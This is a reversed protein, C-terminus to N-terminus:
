LAFSTKFALSLPSFCLHSPPFSFSIYRVVYICRRKWSVKRRALSKRRAKQVKRKNLFAIQKQIQDCRSSIEDFSGITGELDNSVEELPGGFSDMVTTLWVNWETEIEQQGEAVLRTLLNMIPGSHESRLELQLDIFRCPESTFISRMTESATGDGETRREVEGCVAELFQKWRESLPQRSHQASQSFHVMADMAGSGATPNLKLQTIGSSQLIEEFSLTFPQQTFSVSTLIESTEPSKFSVSREEVFSSEPVRICGDSSIQIRDGADLTLCRSAISSRRSRKSIMSSEEDFEITTTRVNADFQRNAFEPEGGVNSVQIKDGPLASFPKGTKEHIYPTRIGVLSERVGAAALLGTMGNELEVTNGEDIDMSDNSAELAVLAETGMLAFDLKQANLQLKSTYKDSKASNLSAISQADTMEISSDAPSLQSKDNMSNAVVDDQTSSSFGAAAPLDVQDFSESSPANKTHFDMNAILGEMGNELEITSEDRPTASTSPVGTSETNTSLMCGKGSPKSKSVNYNGPLAVPGTDDHANSIPSLEPSRNMNEVTIKDVLINLDAEIEVTHDVVPSSTDSAEGSINDRPIAYLEKAKKSPMPTMNVSPSGIHYEAAEPSGFAVSRQSSKSNSRIKKRSSLIGVPQSKKSMPSIQVSNEKDHAVPPLGQISTKCRKNNTQVDTESDLKARLTDLVGNENRMESLRRKTTFTSTQLEEMENESEFAAKKASRTNRAPSNIHQPNPIRRPSPAIKTPTPKKHSNPTLRIPSKAPPTCDTPALQEGGLSADILKSPSPMTSVSASRSRKRSSVVPMITGDEGTREATLDEGNKKNSDARATMEDVAENSAFVIKSLQSHSPSAEGVSSIKSAPTGESDQTQFPVSGFIEALDSLSATEPGDDTGSHSQETSGFSGQSMKEASANRSTQSLQTRVREHTSENCDKLYSSIPSGVQMSTSGTGLLDALDALSATDGCAEITTTYSSKTSGLSETCQEQNPEASMNTLAPSGQPTADTSCSSRSQSNKLFLVESIDGISATDGDSQSPSGAIVLCDKSEIRPSHIRDDQKGTSLFADRTKIPVQVPEENSSAPVHQSAQDSPSLEEEEVSGAIIRSQTRLIGSLDALSFTGGERDQALSNGRETDVMAPRSQGMEVALALSESTEDSGPPIDMIFLGGSSGEKLDPNNHTNGEQEGALEECAPPDVLVRLSGTVVGVISALQGLSATDGDGQEITSADKGSQHTARELKGAGITHVSLPTESLSISGDCTLRKLHSTGVEEVHELEAPRKKKKASSRTNRAPSDLAKPNLIRRPVADLKTPTLGPTLRGNEASPADAMPSLPSEPRKEEKSSGVTAISSSEMANKPSAENAVEISKPISTVNKTEHRGEAENSTHPTSLGTMSGRSYSSESSDDDGDKQAAFIEEMAGVIEQTTCSKNVVPSPSPSPVSQSAMLTPQASTSTPPLRKRDLNATDGTENYNKSTLSELQANLSQISNKSDASLRRIADQKAQRNMRQNRLDDTLKKLSQPTASMRQRLSPSTRRLSQRRSAGVEGVPTEQALPVTDQSSSESSGKSASTVELVKFEVSPADAEITLPQPKVGVDVDLERPGKKKASHSQGAMQRMVQRSTAQLVFSSATLDTTDSLTSKNLMDGDSQDSSGSSSAGLSLLSTDALNVSKNLGPISITGTLNEEDQSEHLFSTSSATAKKSSNVYKFYFNAPAGLSVRSKSPTKAIGSVKTVSPQAENEKGSAPFSSTGRSTQPTSDSM